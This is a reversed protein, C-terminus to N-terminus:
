PVGGAGVQRMWAPVDNRADWKKLRYVRDLYEYHAQVAADANATRMLRWGPAQWRKQQNWAPAEAIAEVRYGSEGPQFRHDQM